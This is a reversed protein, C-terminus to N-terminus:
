KTEKEAILVQELRALSSQWFEQHSITWNHIAMIAQPRVRYMRRQADIRQEVVGANRLIKLHRSIAPGSIAVIGKLSGASKEGNELLQNVIAFRTPDSLAAFTSNLKSM